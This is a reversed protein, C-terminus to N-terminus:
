DQTVRVALAITSGSETSSPAAALVVYKGLTATLTTSLEFRAAMPEKRNARPGSMEAIIELEVTDSNRRMHAQGRLDFKLWETSDSEMDQAWASRFTQESNARVITTGLLSPYGFSSDHLTRAIPMLAEPLDVYDPDYDPSVKGSLFSFHLALSRKEQDIQSILSRVAEIEEETGTVVLQRNMHDAGVYMENAGLSYVLPMLEELPYTKVPIYETRASRPEELPGEVDVEAILREVSNVIDEEGRLVVRDTQPVGELAYLEGSYIEKVIGEVSHVSLHKLKIVRIVDREEDEQGLATGLSSMIGLVILVTCCKIVRLM